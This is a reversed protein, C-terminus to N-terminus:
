RSYILDLIAEAIRSREAGVEDRTVTHRREQKRLRTLRQALLTAEQQYGDLGSLIDLVEALQDERVLMEIQSTLEANLVPLQDSPPGTSVSVQGVSGGCRLARELDDALKALRPHCEAAPNLRESLVRLLLVLGNEKTDARRKEVLFAMVAEARAALNSAQPLSDRWPKLRDDVFIARLAADSEFPGCDLLAQKLPNYMASPIGAM